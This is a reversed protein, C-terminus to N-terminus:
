WAYVCEDLQRFRIRGLFPQCPIRNTSQHNERKFKKRVQLHLQQEKKENMQQRMRRTTRLEIVPPHYIDNRGVRNKM